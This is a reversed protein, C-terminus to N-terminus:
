STHEKAALGDLTLKMLLLGSDIGRTTEGLIAHLFIIGDIGMLLTRAALEPDVDARLEGRQIGHRILMTGTTLFKEYHDRFRRQFDPEHIAILFLHMLGLMLEIQEGSAALQEEVIQRLVEAVTAGEADLRSMTATTEDLMHELVATYIAQKSDFHHYVAGKSLGAREAIDDVRAAHYGKEGCVAIAAQLIQAQRVEASEHRAM